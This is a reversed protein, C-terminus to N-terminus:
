RRRGRLAGVVARIAAPDAAGTIRVRACALEIELIGSAPDPPPSSASPRGAEVPEDDAVVLPAFSAREAAAGLLQRRWRYLLSADVGEIRAFEAVRVGASSAGRSLRLKEREDYRRRRGGDTIVEVRQMAMLVAVHIAM